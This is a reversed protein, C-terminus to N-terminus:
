PARCSLSEGSPVPPCSVPPFSHVTTSEQASRGCAAHGRGCQGCGGDRLAVAGQGHDGRHGVAKGDEVVRRLHRGVEDGPRGVPLQGDVLPGRARQDARELHEVRDRGPLGVEIVRGVVVEEVLMRGIGEEGRHREAHGPLFHRVPVIVAAALFQVVFEPQQEVELGEHAALTL